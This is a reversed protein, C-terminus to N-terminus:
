KEGKLNKIVAMAREHDSMPGPTPTGGGRLPNSPDTQPAGPPKVGSVREMVLEEIRLESLSTARIDEPKLGYKAALDRKGVALERAEVAAARSTLERDRVIDSARPDGAKVAKAVEEADEARRTLTAIQTAAESGIRKVEALERALTSQARGVLEQLQAESYKPSGDPSGAGAGPQSGGNDAM